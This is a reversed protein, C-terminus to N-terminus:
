AIPMSLSFTDRGISVVSGAQLLGRLPRRFGARASCATARCGRWRCSAAPGSGPAASPIFARLWCTSVPMSNVLKDEYTPVALGLGTIISPTGNENRQRPLDDIRAADNQRDASIGAPRLPGWGGDSPQISQDVAKDTPNTGNLVPYEDQVAHDGTPVKLGIGLSLNGRRHLATDWAWFRGAVILDGIGSANQESRPGLPPQAPLPISWSGQFVPVSLTLNWRETVAWTAGLDISKQINVVNNHLDQRQTQEVAGSYHRDSRLGRYSFSFQWDGEELYPNDSAGIGPATQRILV